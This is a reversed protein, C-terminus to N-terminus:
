ESELVGDLKDEINQLRAVIDQLELYLPSLANRIDEKVENFRDKPM